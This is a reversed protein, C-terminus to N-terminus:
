SCRTRTSRIGVMGRLVTGDQKTRFHTWEVAVQDTDPSVILQDLTWYSGLNSVAAQWRQAIYAAGRWPGDYMGPPFAHVADPTLCSEMKEADAECCGEIHVELHAAGNAVSERVM